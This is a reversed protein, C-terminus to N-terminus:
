RSALRRLSACGSHSVISSTSVSPTFTHRTVGGVEIKFTEVVKPMGEKVFEFTYPRGADVVLHTFRGRKDTKVTDRYGIEDQTIVVEVGPVPNGQADVVDAQLRGQGIALASVAPLLLAIVALWLPTARFSQNRAIM